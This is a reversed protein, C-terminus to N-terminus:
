LFIYNLHIRIARVIPLPYVKKKIERLCKEVQSITKYKRALWWKREMILIVVLRHPAKYDEAERVMDSDVYRSIQASAEEFPACKSM